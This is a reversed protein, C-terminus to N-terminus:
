NVTILANSFRAPIPNSGVMYQGGQILIPAQGTATAQVDLTAFTGSDTAGTKRQFTLVLSGNPGPVGTLSGGDATLFDGAAFGTVTLKPDVKLEMTGSTLGQAGSAFLTIRVTNGKPVELSIPNMFFVLSGGADADQTSAAGAQPSGPAQPPSAANPAAGPQAEGPPVAGPQAAGPLPPVPPTAAPPAPAGPVAAPAAQPSAAPAAPQPKSPPVANMPVRPTGKTEPPSFPKAANPALDPDFAEFDEEALDPKRVVVARMTLIVDTKAKYNNHHGLLDGVVPISTLGWIGQLDKREEEKLMGGFIATEGDRLRASTKIVRQSLDPRGPTSGAKQTKIDTELDITIDGNFHVRPKVKIQVGVDEYSYQTQTTLAGGLTSLASTATTATTGTTTTGTASTLGGISSQTTSIKDGINVEGTEGSVVRVNPNALLKTAGSEKLMDLRLSPFLFNITSKSIRLSGTTQNLNSAGGSATAGVSYTGVTDSPTVVPLLGLSETDTEAVELLELYIMVEAKAKDLQNVIRQAIALDTPKALVTMANLRKDVFVRLQPMLANFIQRVNDVEANSLYFTRILKNEYEQLNQPTKKFVMITNPDIVKYFLDSQLMLTDLVRQFPLGRLDVSVQQDQQAASQHLVINVGSNKSLQQLIEKLSTKRTFNLDMGELSRPNIPLIQKAEAKKQEADISEEAEAKARRQEAARELRALWDVAVANSADLAVALGVERTEIDVQGLRQAEKAKVLHQEAALAASKRLGIKAEIWDPDKVLAKRYEALADDYDGKSFATDAKHLGCALTVALTLTLAAAVARTLATRSFRPIFM